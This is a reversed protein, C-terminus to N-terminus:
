RIFRLYMSEAWEGLLRGKSIRYYVDLSPNFHSKFACLQKTNAGTLEFVPYGENKSQQLANWILFENSHNHSRINGLWLKVDKYKTLYISGSITGQDEASLLQFHGPLKKALDKLYDPGPLPDSFGQEHYREGLRDYLMDVDEGASLTMGSKIAGKISRRKVTSFGEWIENIPRQLDFFYNYSVELQYGNWIFERLDVLGRSNTIIVKSPTHNEIERDLEEMALALFSEKKYQKLGEYNRSLVLGLYPIATKPPPSFIFNMGMMEKRFLPIVGVLEEGKRIGYTFLKTGTHKEVVKLFDWKHFIQGQPSEHIFADWIQKDLIIEIGM